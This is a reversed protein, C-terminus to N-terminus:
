FLLYKKTKKLKKIEEFIEVAKFRMIYKQPSKAIEVSKQSVTDSLDGKTTTPLCIEPFIVCWWNEGQAKGVEIILSKYIGAPLTFDDYVRTEFYSDGISAQANYSFGNRKIVTNAIESFKETNDNAVIIAQDIDKALDFIEGSELLIQDRIKLKLMQDEDSNSNAIIHLRLVNKRLENCSADFDLLVLFMSSILAFCLSINFLKFSIKHKM